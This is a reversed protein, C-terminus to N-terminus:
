YRTNKACVFGDIKGNTSYWLKLDPEWRCGLSKLYEKNEFKANLIFYKDSNNNKLTFDGMPGELILTDGEKLAFIKETAYGKNDLKVTIRIKTNDDDPKSISYARFIENEKDALISVFQGSRYEIKDNLQFTFEIIEDSIRYISEIKARYTRRNEYGSEPVSSVTFGTTHEKEMKLIGAKCNVVCTKCKICDPNQVQNTSNKLEQHVSIQMPCVRTCNGCKLCLYENTLTVKTNFGKFKLVKNKVSHLFKQVTGMPCFTCWSRPNVTLALILGFSTTITCMMVGAMGLKDWFESQGTHGFSLIVNRMFLSMLLILVAIRFTKTKFLKNIKDFNGIKRVPIDLFAGRPCYNGCWHRGKFFGMIMIVLFMPFIALGMKPYFFGAFSIILVIPWIFLRYRAINNFTKIYFKAGM